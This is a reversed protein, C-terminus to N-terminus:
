DSPLNFSAEVVRRRRDYYVILDQGDGPGLYDNVMAVPYSASAVGPDSPLRNEDSGGEGLMREVEDRRAGEFLDCRVVQEALEIKRESDIASRRWDRRDFADDCSPRSEAAIVVGGLVGTVLALAGLLLIRRRGIRM